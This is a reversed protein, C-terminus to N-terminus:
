INNKKSQNVNESTRASVSQSIAIRFEKSFIIQKEEAVTRKHELDGKIITINIIFM